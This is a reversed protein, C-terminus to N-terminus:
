EMSLVFLVERNLQFNDDGKYIFHYRVPAIGKVQKEIRLSEPNFYWEEIFIVSRIEDIIERQVVTDMPEGDINMISVTDRIIIKKEVEKPSLPTSTLYDYVKSKSNAAQQLLSKIFITQNIRNLFPAGSTSRISGPGYTEDNMMNTVGESFNEHTYPNEMDFLHEYRVRAFFILNSDRNNQAFPNYFWFTRRFRFTEEIDNLYYIYRRIPSCANVKKDFRLPNTTFSWEEIFNVSSLEQYQIEQRQTVEHEEGNDDFVQITVESEGLRERIRQVDLPKGRADPNFPDMYDVQDADYVEISGNVAREALLQLINVESTYDFIPRTASDIPSLSPMQNFLTDFPVHESVIIRDPLLINDNRFGFQQPYVKM